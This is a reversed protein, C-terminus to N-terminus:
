RSAEEDAVPGEPVLENLRGPDDDNAEQYAFNCAPGQTEESTNSGEVLHTNEINLDEIEQNANALLQELQERQEVVNKHSETIAKIAELSVDYARLLADAGQTSPYIHSERDLRLQRILEEDSIVKKEHKVQVESAKATKSVKSM